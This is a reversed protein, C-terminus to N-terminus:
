LLLPARLTHPLAQPPPLLRQSDSVGRHREWPLLDAHDAGRVPARNAESRPLLNARPENAPPGWPAPAQTPLMKQLGSGRTVTGELWPGRLGGGRM